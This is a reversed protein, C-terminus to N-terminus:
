TLRKRFCVIREVEEYGLRQHAAISTENELWTDSAIETLGQERAWAEMAQVLAGGIGQRRVDADVYWGEIYGVPSNDCGEAYKRLGGELFGALGGGPRVAVFVPALPDSLMQRMEDEHEEPTAEDWLACRMRLWEDWDAPEVRRIKM